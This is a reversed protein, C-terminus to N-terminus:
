EAGGGATLLTVALVSGATLMLALGAWWTKASSLFLVGHTRLGAKKDFLPAVLGGPSGPEVDSGADSAPAAPPARADPSLGAAALNLYSSSAATAKIVAGNRRVNAPRPPAPPPRLRPAAQSPPPPPPPAPQRRSPPRAAAPGWRCGPV